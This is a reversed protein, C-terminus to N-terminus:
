GPVTAPASDATAVRRAAQAMLRRDLEGILGSPSSMLGRLLLLGFLAITLDPNFSAGIHLTGLVGNILQPLLLPFMAYLFSALLAGGISAVGGIVLVILLPISGTLADFFRPDVVPSLGMYLGGAVGAYFSSLAFALLKYRVVSIGVSAAALESDRVAAFALGTKRDRLALTFAVFVILIALDVYYLRARGALTGPFTWSGLTPPNVHLLTGGALTPNFLITAVVVQSLGLTAVALYIGRLRLAPLAAVLGVPVAALGALPLAAWYGTYPQLRAVALAGVGMFAFQALSVQGVYGLLVVLSIAALGLILGYVAATTYSPRNLLATIGPFAIIAAMGVATISARSRRASREVADDITLPIATAAETV